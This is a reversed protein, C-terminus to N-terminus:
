VRRFAGELDGGRLALFVAVDDLGLAQSEDAEVPQHDAGFTQVDGGGVPFQTLSAPFM